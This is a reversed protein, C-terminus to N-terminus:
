HNDRSARNAVGLSFSRCDAGVQAAPNDLFSDRDDHVMLLAEVRERLVTDGATAENVFSARQGAPKEIAALFITKAHNREDM